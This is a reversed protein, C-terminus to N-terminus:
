MINELSYYKIGAEDFMNLALIGTEKWRGDIISDFYVELIGSQIIAKACELCVPQGTVYIKCGNVSSGNYQANLIANLEAHVIYKYKVDRNKLRETDDDIGRPFGNYGQSIIQGKNGIIVAGVKSSPDKSWSAVLRAIELYRKDWKNM